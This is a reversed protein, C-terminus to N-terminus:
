EARWYTGFMGLEFAGAVDLEDSQRNAVMDLNLFAGVSRTIPLSSAPSVNLSQRAFCASTCNILFAHESPAFEFTLGPVNALSVRDETTSVNLGIALLTDPEVFVADNERWAIAEVARGTAIMRFEAVFPAGRVSSKAPKASLLSIATGGPFPSHSASRAQVPSACLVIVSALAISLTKM